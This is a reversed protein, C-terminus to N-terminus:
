NVSQKVIIKIPKNKIIPTDNHMNNIIRALGTLESTDEQELLSRLSVSNKPKIIKLKTFTLEDIDEETSARFSNISLQIDEMHKKLGYGLINYLTSDKKVWVNELFIIHEDSNAKLAVMHAPLDNITINKDMIVEVESNHLSNIFTQAADEPYEHQHDIRILIVGERNSQVAGVVSPSNEIKWNEPFHYYLEQEPHIFKSDHILGQQPNQGIIIGDLQYNFLSDAIIKTPKDTDLKKAVNKIYAVREPTYPHNQLYNKKEAKGSYYTALASLQSLIPALQIPQYGAKAAIAMGLKDAEKEHKRSYSAMWADTGITVPANILNGVGDGIISGIINGPLKFIAPLISKKMQKISHRKYSHVIEHSIICALEDETNIIPLLGRTLYVYGGPLAFANPRDTDLIFFQYKFPQQGLQAVLKNGVDNIYATLATDQYIGIHREILIAAEAGYKIDYDIDQCNVHQMNILFM